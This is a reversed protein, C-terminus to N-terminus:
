FRRRRLAILWDEVEAANGPEEPLPSRALAEDLATFAQEVRARWRAFRPPDLLVREGARKHAVLETADAFGHEDFLETVDTVIRGTALVHAGTLATRLVYLIKKATPRDTGDAEQLQGRAFGRYHRYLRRSLARAVIPRLEDHEASSRLRLAGLVREVYNGNGHLIRVLVGGVENSSYDIEVGDVVELRTAHLPPPTLGVLRATREVHIAKLDLDSDPSPFGYAHAGSLSVVLHARAAGEEDLVRAAAAAQEPTLASM